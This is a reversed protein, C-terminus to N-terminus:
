PETEVDLPALIRRLKMMGSRIRTKVTGLPQQLASAIVRHSAGGFYAWQMVEREENSIRALADRVVRRREAAIMTDVEADDDAIEFDSGGLPREIVVPGSKARLADLARSRAITLIWTMTSGRRPDFTCARRWLHLFVDGTAEEAACDDRLVRSIFGFVASATRDYLEGLARDDREAVRQVLEALPDSGSRLAMPDSRSVSSRLFASMGLIRASGVPHIPLVRGNKEERADASM